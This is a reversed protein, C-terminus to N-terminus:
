RLGGALFATVVNRVGGHVGGNDVVRPHGDLGGGGRSGILLDKDGYTLLPRLQAPAADVKLFALTAHHSGPWAQRRRQERRARRPRPTKAPARARESSAAGTAATVRPLCTPTM